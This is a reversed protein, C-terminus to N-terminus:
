QRGALRARILDRTEGAFGLELAEDLTGHLSAGGGCQCGHGTTDSSEWVVIFQGDSLKGLAFSGSDCYSNCTPYEDGPPFCSCSGLAVLTECGVMAEAAIAPAHEGCSSAADFVNEVTLKSV